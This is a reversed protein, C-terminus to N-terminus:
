AAFAAQYSAQRLDHRDPSVDVQDAIFRLMPAPVSESPTWARGPYRLFGLQIAFGLRNPEGRHRAILDLDAPSFTCCDALQRVDSPLMLLQTRQTPALLGQWPM